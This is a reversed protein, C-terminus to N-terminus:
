DEKNSSSILSYLSQPPTIKTHSVEEMPTEVRIEFM